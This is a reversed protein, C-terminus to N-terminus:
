QALQQDVANLLQTLLELAQDETPDSIAGRWLVKQRANPLVASTICIAGTSSYEFFINCPARKERGIICSICTNSGIKALEPVGAAKYLLDMLHWFGAYRFSTPSIGEFASSNFAHQLFTGDRVFGSFHNNARDLGSWRMQVMMIQISAQNNSAVSSGYYQFFLAIPARGECRSAREFDIARLEGNVDVMVNRRYPDHHFVCLPESAVYHFLFGLQEDSIEEAIPYLIERGVCVFACPTTMGICILGFTAVWIKQEKCVFDTTSSELLGLGARQISRKCRMLHPIKDSLLGMCVVKVFFKENQFFFPGDTPVKGKGPKCPDNEAHRVMKNGRPNTSMVHFLGGDALEPQLTLATAIDHCHTVRWWADHEPLDPPSALIPSMALCANLLPPQCICDWAVLKRLELGTANTDSLDKILHQGMEDLTRTLFNLGLAMTFVACHANGGCQLKVFNGNHPKINVDTFGLAKAVNNRFWPSVAQHCKINNFPDLIRLSAQSVVRQAWTLDIGILVWHHHPNEESAPYSYDKPLNLSFLVAYPCRSYFNEKWIGFHLAQDADQAALYRFLGSPLYMAGPFFATLAKFFWNVTRDAIFENDISPATPYRYFDVPLNGEDDYHDFYAEPYCGPYASYINKTSTDYGRTLHIKLEEFLKTGNTVTRLVEENQNQVSLRACNQFDSFISHSYSFSFHRPLSVIETQQVVPWNISNMAHQQNGAASALVSAAISQSIGISQLEEIAPRQTFPEASNPRENLAPSTHRFFFIYGNSSIDDCVHSYDSSSIIEKEDDLKTWQVDPNPQCYAYYHGPRHCVVAYLRFTQSVPVVCHQGFDYELPVDIRTDIRKSGKPCTEFRKLCVFFFDPFAVNPNQTSDLFLRLQKSHDQGGQCRSCTYQESHGLIEPAFFATLCEGLSVCERTASAIFPLTLFDTHCTNSQKSCNRCVIQSQFPLRFM